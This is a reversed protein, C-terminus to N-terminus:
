WPSLNLRFRNQFVIVNVVTIEYVFIIVENTILSIINSAVLIFLIFTTKYKAAKSKLFRILITYIYINIYLDQWLRLFFSFPISPYILRYWQRRSPIIGSADGVIIDQITFSFRWHSFLDSNKFNILAESKIVCRQIKNNIEM